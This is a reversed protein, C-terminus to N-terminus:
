RPSGCTARGRPQSTGDEADRSCRGRASRRPWRAWPRTSGAGAARAARLGPARREHEAALREVVEHVDAVPVRNVVVGFLECGKQELSERAVARGGDAAAEASDGRVVALVPCGLENALDANLDFDLAPTAGAFDTGECVVVDCGDSSSRPLRGRGAERARRLAGGGIAAQAEADTLACM